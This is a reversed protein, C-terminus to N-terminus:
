RCKVTISFPVCQSGATRISFWVGVCVGVGASYFFSPLGVPSGEKRNAEFLLANGKELWFSSLLLANIVFGDM